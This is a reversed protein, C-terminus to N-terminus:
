DPASLGATIARTTARLAGVIARVAQPQFRIEPMAVSLGALLRHDADHITHGIAVIGRESLGPNLAFGQERISALRPLLALLDPSEEDEGPRAYLEAIQDDDLEALMALGGSTLHAPFVMGSRHGVRLVQNCEVEAIFRVVRQTRITLTVTEDFREMLRTMPGLAATRLTGADGSPSEVRALLPGVGYGRARRVAFDRYVLMTLLRYATGAAVGLREAVQIVSMTGELQLLAALRLANDVSAIAYSPRDKRPRPHSSM